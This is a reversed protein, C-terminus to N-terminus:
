VVPARPDLPVAALLLSAVGEGSNILGNSAESPSSPFFRM